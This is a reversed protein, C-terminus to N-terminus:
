GRRIKSGCWRFKHIFSFVEKAKKAAMTSNALQTLFSLVAVAPIAIWNFANTDGTCPAPMTHVMPVALTVSTFISAVLDSLLSISYLDLASVKTFRNAGIMIEVM